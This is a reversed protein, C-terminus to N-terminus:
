QLDTVRDLLQALCVFEFHRGTVHRGVTTLQFTQARLLRVVRVLLPQGQLLFRPLKLRLRLRVQLLDPFGLAEKSFYVPLCMLRLM